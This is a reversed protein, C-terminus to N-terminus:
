SSVIPERLDESVAEYPIEIVAVTGVGDGGLTLQANAGYLAALLERVSLIDADNASEPAFGGGQSRLTLRLRTGLVARDITFREDGEVGEGRRALAHNILPLLIMAPMRTGGDISAEDGGLILCDDSRLGVINFFANTLRIEQMLTSASDGVRPIVSRLFVTLENLVRDAMPANTEYLHDVQALTNVVFLPDVRARIAALRSEVVNKEMKVREVQLLRLAALRQATWRRRVYVFTALGCVVLGHTAHRSFFTDFGERSGRMQYATHITFVRQSLFWYLASGWLVAIVVALAYPWWRRMPPPSARDAVLVAFLVVFGNLQMSLVANLSPGLLVPKSFYSTAAAVVVISWAFCLCFTYLVHKWTLARWALAIFSVANSAVNSRAGLILSRQVTM